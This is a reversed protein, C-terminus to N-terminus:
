QIPVVVFILVDWLAHSIIVPWLSGQKKYVYGWFAACILAAMLLMFNMAYAHVLAYLLTALMYGHQPGLGRSLREQVFGRWFIEEAPGIWFLLLLAILAPPMQTKMAYIQMVQGQAFPLLRASLAHGVFFVGYLLLASGVGILIHPTKFEFDRPPSQRRALLATFALIGSAASMGAWFNLLHATAPAFLIFWFVNAALYAAILLPNM